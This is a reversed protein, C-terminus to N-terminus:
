RAAGAAETAGDAGAAAARLSRPRLDTWSTEIWALCAARDARPHAERWGAPVPIHAPWLSHQEEDNTLVLFTGDPDDFPNM